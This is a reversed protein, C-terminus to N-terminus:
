LSFHPSIHKDVVNYDSDVGADGKAESLNFLYDVEELWDAIDDKPLSTSIICLLEDLEYKNSKNKGHIYSLANNQYMDGIWHLHIPKPEITQNSDNIICYVIDDRKLQELLHNVLQDLDSPKKNYKGVYQEELFQKYEENIKIVILFFTASENQIDQDFNGFIDMYIHQNNIQPKIIKLTHIFKSPITICECNEFTFTISNTENMINM